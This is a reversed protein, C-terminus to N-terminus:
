GFWHVSIFFMYPFAILLAIAIYEVHTLIRGEVMEAIDAVPM